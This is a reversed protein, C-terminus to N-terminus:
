PLVGPGPLPRGLGGGAHRLFRRLSVAGADRSAYTKLYDGSSTLLRPFLLSWPRSVASGLRWVSPRLPRGCFLDLASPHPAASPGASTASPVPSGRRTGKVLRPRREAAARRRAPHARAGLSRRGGLSEPCFEQVRPCPQPSRALGGGGGDSTGRAASVRACVRHSVGTRYPRCHLSSGRGGGRPVASCETNRSWRGAIELHPFWHFTLRPSLIPCVHSGPPAACRVGRPLGGSRGRPFRRGSPSAGGRRSPM